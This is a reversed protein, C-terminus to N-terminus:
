PVVSLTLAWAWQNEQWAKAGQDACWQRRFGLIHPYVAVSEVGRRKGLSYTAPPPIGMWEHAKLDHRPEIGIAKADEETIEQVRLVRIADIQLMLRSLAHSMALPSRWRSGDPVDSQDTARYRVWPRYGNMTGSIHAERVWLPDGVVGVPAYRVLERALSTPDYDGLHVTPGEWRWRNLGRPPTEVPQPEIPRWVQVVKNALAARVEWDRLIISKM